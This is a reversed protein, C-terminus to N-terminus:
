KIKLIELANELSIAIYDPKSNLIDTQKSFRNVWITNFGFSKAGAIDWGNSSFFVVENSNVGFKKNAMDYVKMCPKFRKIKEVSIVADLFGGIGSSEVAMNLMEYCGNSLIATKIGNEQLKKLVGKVEDYADLKKYLEMLKPKLEKKIYFTNM